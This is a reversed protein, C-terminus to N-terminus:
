DLPVEVIEDPWLTLSHTGSTNIFPVRYLKIPKSWKTAYENAIVRAQDDTDCEMVVGGLASDVEYVQKESKYICM